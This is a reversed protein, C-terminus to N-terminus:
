YQSKKNLKDKIDDLITQMPIRKKINSDCLLDSCLSIPFELGVAPPISMRQVKM